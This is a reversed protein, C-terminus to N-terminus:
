HQHVPKLDTLGDTLCDKRLGREAEWGVCNLCAPPPFYHNLILKGGASRPRVCWLLNGLVLCAIRWSGAIVLDQQAWRSRSSRGKLSTNVHSPRNTRHHAINVSREAAGLGQPKGQGWGPEVAASEDRRKRPFRLLWIGRAHRSSHSLMPMFINRLGTRGKPDFRAFRTLWTSTPQFFLM